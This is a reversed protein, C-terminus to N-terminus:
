QVSNTGWAELIIKEAEPSQAYTDLFLSKDAWRGYATCTAVDVGRRVLMETAFGHRGAGHPVLKEIKANRCATNWAKRPGDKSAYGFVRLNEPVNKWNRPAKPTISRLLDALEQTIELEVEEHGKTAPILVINRHLEKLHEPGMATAQGVRAATEFMFRALVYLEHHAALKFNNLWTVSGPTKKQRSKKGRLKDQALRDQTSFSPVRIKDCRGVAHGANAVRQMPVIIWRRWTDTSADPLIKSCLKKIREPSLDAIAVDGVQKVIPMLRKATPIDVDALLSAEAFTIPLVEEGFHYKRLEAETFEQIWAYAGQLTASGTSKRVYETIKRGNFEVHGRAWYTKGRPYAELM